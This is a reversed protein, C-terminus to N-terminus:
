QIQFCMVRAVFNHNGSPRGFRDRREICYFCIGYEPRNTKPQQSDRKTEWSVAISYSCNKGARRAKGHTHDHYTRSCPLGRRHPHLVYSVLFAYDDNPCALEDVTWSLIAKGLVMISILAIQMKFPISTDRSEMCMTLYTYSLHFTFM